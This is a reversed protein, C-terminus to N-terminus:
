EKEVGMSILRYREGKHRFRISVYLVDREGKQLLKIAEFSALVESVLKLKDWLNM